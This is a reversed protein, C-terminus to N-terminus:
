ECLDIIQEKKNWLNESPHHKASDKTIRHIQIQCGYVYECSRMSM